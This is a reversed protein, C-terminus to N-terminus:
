VNGIEAQVTYVALEVRFSAKIQVSELLLKKGQTAAFLLSRIILCNYFVGMYFHM